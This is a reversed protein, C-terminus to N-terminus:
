LMTELPIGTVYGTPTKFLLESKSYIADWVKEMITRPYYKGYDYGGEAFGQWPRITGSQEPNKFSGDPYIDWSFEIPSIKEDRYEAGVFLTCSQEAKVKIGTKGIISGSTDLSINGTQLGRDRWKYEWNDWGKDYLRVTTSVGGGITAAFGTLRAKVNTDSDGIFVGESFNESDGLNILRSVANTFIIRDGEPRVRNLNNLYDSMAFRVMDDTLPRTVSIGKSAQSAESGDKYWYTHGDTFAIMLGKPLGYADILGGRPLISSITHTNDNFLLQSSSGTFPQDPDGSSIIWNNSNSILGNYYPLISKIQEIKTAIETNIIQPSGVARGGVTLQKTEVKYLTRYTGNKNIYDDMNKSSRIAVPTIGGNVLGTRTPMPATYLFEKIYLNGQAYGIIEINFSPSVNLSRTNSLQNPKGPNIITTITIKRSSGLKSTFNEYNILYAENGYAAAYQAYGLLVTNGGGSLNKGDGSFFVKGDSQRSIIGGNISYFDAIDANKPALSATYNGLGWIYKGSPSYAPTCNNLQSVVGGKYEIMKTKYDFSYSPASTLSILLLPLLTTQTKKM